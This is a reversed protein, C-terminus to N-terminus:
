EPCTMPRINSTRLCVINARQFRMAFCNARTALSMVMATLAPPGSGADVLVTRAARRLLLVTSPVDVTGALEGGPALLSPEMPLWGVTLLQADTSM